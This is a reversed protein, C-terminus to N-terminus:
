ALRGMADVAANRADDDDGELYDILHIALAIQEDHSLSAASQRAREYSLSRNIAARNVAYAKTLEPTIRTIPANM